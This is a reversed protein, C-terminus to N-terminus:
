QSIQPALIRHHETANVCLEKAVFPKDARDTFSLETPVLEACRVVQLINAAGASTGREANNNEALFAPEKCHFAILEGLSAGFAGALAPHIASAKM